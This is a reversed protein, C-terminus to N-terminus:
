ILCYMPICSDTRPDDTRRMYEDFDHMSCKDRYFNHAKPTSYLVVYQAGITNRTIEEIFFLIDMFVMSAFVQISDDPSYQKHRYREDVMFKDILVAPALETISGNEESMIVSCALSVFAVADGTEQNRYIFTRATSDDVACYRLYEIFNMDDLTGSFGSVSDINDATLLERETKIDKGYEPLRYDNTNM